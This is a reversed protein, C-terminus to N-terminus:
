NSPLPVASLHLFSRTVVCRRIEAPMMPDNQGQGVDRDLKFTLMGMGVRRSVFTPETFYINPPTGEARQPLLTIRMESDDLM